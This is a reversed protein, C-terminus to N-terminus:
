ESAGSKQIFFCPWKSFPLLRARFNAARDKKSCKGMLKEGYFFQVM